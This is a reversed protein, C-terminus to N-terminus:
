LRLAKIESEFKKYVFYWYKDNASIYNEVVKISHIINSHKQGVIKGIENLTLKTNLHLHYVLIQRLMLVDKERCQKKLEYKEAFDNPTNMESDSYIRNVFFEIPTIQTNM